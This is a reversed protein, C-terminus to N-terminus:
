PLAFLYSALLPMDLPVCRVATYGAKNRMDRAREINEHVKRTNDGVMLFRGPARKSLTLLMESFSPDTESVRM